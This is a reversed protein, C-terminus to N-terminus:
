RSGREIWADRSARCVELTGHICSFLTGDAARYDYQVLKRRKGCIVTAFEEYQEEGPKVNKPDVM